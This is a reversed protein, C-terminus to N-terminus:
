WRPCPRVARVKGARAAMNLAAFARACHSHTAGKPRGTTGSTYLIYNPADPAVPPVDLVASGSGLVLEYDGTSGNSSSGGVLLVHELTAPLDGDLRELLGPAAVLVSAESDAVIYRCEDPSLRDTIGVRTIGARTCALDVEVFESANPMLTAVPRDPGAGLALLANALRATRAELERYTVRREGEVLALRDGYSRLSREVLRQATLMSSM